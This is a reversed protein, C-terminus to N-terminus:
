SESERDTVARRADDAKARASEARRRAADAAKTAQRLTREADALEREAEDAAAQATEARRRLRDLEAARRAAQREAEKSAAEAAAKEAERAKRAEAERRKEAERDPARPAPAVAAATLWSEGAYPDLATSLCGGLVVEAAEADSTAAALTETVERAVSDSVQGLKRARALLGDVLEHRQRSLARLDDGALQQHATRLKEGVETLEVLQDHHERALRNVLWAAMTPKRLGAIQKALEKDGASRARKVREDREATFDERTGGYLEDVVSRLDM